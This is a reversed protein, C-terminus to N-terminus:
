WSQNVKVIFTLAGFFKTDPDADDLLGRAVDWAQPLRQIQQLREQILQLDGPSIGLPRHLQVVL